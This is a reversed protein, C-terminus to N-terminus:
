DRLARMVDVFQEFPVPSTTRAAYEAYKEAVHTNPLRRLLEAAEAAFPHEGSHRAGHLWWVQRTSGADVLAHLMALMPTVGIGASILVVPGEGPALTFTGRPAAAELTAGARIVAHVLRSAVGHSERKVSIRYEPAGPRGSLSYSRTVPRAAAGPDLRVTLFQGPLAPPLPTGDTSALRLSVVDTLEAIREVVRLPRFGPWAPAPVGAVANLGVNGTGGPGDAANLLAEFSAKWGPSLAPIELALAVQRRDHGPLYLLADVDAVTLAHRGGAVKVIEDGAAVVGEDLVRMYFGPRRHSVLLAPLQPEGLRLGVRYCTVRPQTVEFLAQGIRYRDGICVEDDALGDVTFNEGFHGPALDDRALVQRWYAYSALQYVLVARYPGGHGGLDGQGDGDVNLARVTRPGAVPYKWVGTRVSRGNWAVVQPLGVNVSVL